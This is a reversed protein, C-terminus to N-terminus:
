ASKQNISAVYYIYKELMKCGQLDHHKALYALYIDQDATINIQIDDIVFLIRKKRAPLKTVREDRLNLKITNHYFLHMEWIEQKTVDSPIYSNIDHRLNRSWCLLAVHNKENYDNSYECFGVYILNNFKELGLFTNRRCRYVKLLKKSQLTKADEIYVKM